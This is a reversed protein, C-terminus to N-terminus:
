GKELHSIVVAQGPLLEETWVPVPGRQSRVRRLMWAAAGVVLWTSNGRLGRRFGDAVLRDLLRRM